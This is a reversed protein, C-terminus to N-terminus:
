IMLLLLLVQLSNWPFFSSWRGSAAKVCFFEMYVIYDDSMPLDALKLAEKFGALREKTVMLDPSGGIFALRKHGLSIFYETLERGALYNDNDIYTVEGTSQHPKGILVFPFQQEILYQIVPDDIRSYLLFLAM